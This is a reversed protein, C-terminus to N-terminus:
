LFFVVISGIAVSRMKKLQEHTAKDYYAGSPPYAGYYGNNMPPPPPYQGNGYYPNGQYGNQPQNFAPYPRQEPMPNNQGAFPPMPQNKNPLSNDISEDGKKSSSNNEESGLSAFNLMHNNLNLDSKFDDNFQRLINFNNKM